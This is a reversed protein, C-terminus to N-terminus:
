DELLCELNQKKIIKKYMREIAIKNIHNMSSGYKKAISFVQDYLDSNFDSVLMNKKTEQEKVSSKKAM